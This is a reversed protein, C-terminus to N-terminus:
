ARGRTLAQHLAAHAGASVAPAGAIAELLQQHAGDPAADRERLERLEQQRKTSPPSGDRHECQEDLIALRLCSASCPTM